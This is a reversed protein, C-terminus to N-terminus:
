FVVLLSIPRYNTMYIKDGRKDIPKVLSYKFWELYTGEMLLNNFIYTLPKSIEITCNKIVKSSINNYGASKNNKLSKITNITEGETVPISKM